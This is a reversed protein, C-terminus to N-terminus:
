KGWLLREHMEKVYDHVLRVRADESRAQLIEERRGTVFDKLETWDKSSLSANFNEFKDYAAM